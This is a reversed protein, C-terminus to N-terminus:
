RCTSTLTRFIVQSKNRSAIGCLKQCNNHRLGLQKAGVLHAWGLAIQSVLTACPGVAGRSILERGTGRAERGHVPTCRSAPHQGGKTGSIPCSRSEPQSRKYPSQACDCRRALMRRDSRNGPATPFFVCQPSNEPLSTSNGAFNLHAERRPACLRLQQINKRTGRVDLPPRFSHARSPPM